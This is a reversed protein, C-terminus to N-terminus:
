VWQIPTLNLVPTVPLLHVVPNVDVVLCVRNKLGFEDVVVLTVTYWPNKNRVIKQEERNRTKEKEEVLSQNKAVNGGNRSM